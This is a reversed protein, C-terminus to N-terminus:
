VGFETYAKESFNAMNVSHKKVAEKDGNLIANILEIGYGEIQGCLKEVTPHYESWDGYGKNEELKTNMEQLFLPNALNHGRIPESQIPERPVVVPFIDEVRQMDKGNYEKEIEAVDQGPMVYVPYHDHDYTDRVDIIHTAGRKIAEPMWRKLNESQTQM